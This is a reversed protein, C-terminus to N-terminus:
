IFSVIKNLKLIEDFFTYNRKKLQLYRLKEQNDKILKQFM